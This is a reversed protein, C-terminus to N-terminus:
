FAMAAASSGGSLAYILSQSVFLGITVGIAVQIMRLGLTFSSYYQQVSSDYNGTLGGAQALGSQSHLCRSRLSVSLAFTRCKLSRMGTRPLARWHGDLYVGGWSVVALLHERSPRHRPRWSCARARGQRVLAWEFGQERRLLLVLLRDHRAAQLEQLVASKLSLLLDLLAAGPVVADVLPFAPPVVALHPRPLVRAARHLSCLFVLAQPFPARYLSLPSLRVELSTAIQSM